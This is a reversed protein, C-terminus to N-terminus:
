FRRSYRLEFNYNPRSNGMPSYNRSIGANAELVGNNNRSKYLQYTGSLDVQTGPQFKFNQINKTATLSAAHGRQHKYDVGVGANLTPFKEASGFVRGNLTHPGKKAIPFSHSKVQRKCRRIGPKPPYRYTPKFPKPGFM